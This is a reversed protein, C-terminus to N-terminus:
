KKQKQRKSIVNPDCVKYYKGAVEVLWNPDIVTLERLYEKSTMVLEHYVVWNVNKNFLCSSPHIYVTNEDGLTKFCDKDARAVNFFYGATIAKRVQTLNNSSVINLNYRRLIYCLQEKIEEAKKLSRYQLFNELCWQQTNNKKFENFVKLLTLHDGHNNIFKSKKRDAEEQKDRPRYFINQVSLMSVITTLEDSCQLDVSAFLMKSLKTSILYIM